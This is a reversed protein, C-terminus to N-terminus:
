RVVFRRDDERWGRRGAERDSFWLRQEWAGLEGAGRGDRDRGGHAQRGLGLHEGLWLRQDVIIDCPEGV